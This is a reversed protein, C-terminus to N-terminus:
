AQSSISAKRAPVSQDQPEAQCAEELLETVAAPSGLTYLRRLLATERPSHPLFYNRFFKKLVEFSRKGQWEQQYAQIHEVLYGVREQLPLDEWPPPPTPSNRAFLLPDFFIGRGIMVGDVGTQETLRLAHDLSCVDGNGIVAARSGLSDRIEVTRRIERWDAWGDYMEDAVRGHLVLADIGQDLLFRCWRDTEAITIGTRTKVSIPLSTGRRCAAILEAALSPTGILASCAGSKRVKWAPCGMNIDIGAFGMAELAAAGEEFEAPNTGWVQVVLPAEEPTSRLRGDPKEPTSRIASDIRTFETFLVSPGPAGWRHAWSRVLRRFVTDTVDEMPALTFIPRPLDQWLTTMPPIM